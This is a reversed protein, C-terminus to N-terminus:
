GQDKSSSTIKDDANHPCDNSTKLHYESGCNFCKYGNRNNRSESDEELKKSEDINAQPIKTALAPWVKMRVQDAYMERM